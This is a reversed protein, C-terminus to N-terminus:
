PPPTCLQRWEVQQTGKDFLPDQECGWGPPCDTPLFCSRTCWRYPAQRSTVCLATLGFCDWRSRCDEGVGGGLAAWLALALLLAGGAGGALRVWPRTSLTRLLPTM